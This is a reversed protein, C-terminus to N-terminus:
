KNKSGGDMIKAGVLRSMTAMRPCGPALPVTRPRISAWEKDVFFLETGVFSDVVRGGVQHSGSAISTIVIHM